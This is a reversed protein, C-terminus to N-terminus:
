DLAGGGRVVAEDDVAEVVAESAALRLDAPSVARDM